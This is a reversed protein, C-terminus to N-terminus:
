SLDCQCVAQAQTCRLQLISLLKYIFIIFTDINKKYEPSENSTDLFMIEINETVLAKVCECCFLFLVYM